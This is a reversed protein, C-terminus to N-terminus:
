WGQNPDSKSADAEDYAMKKSTIKIPYKLKANDKDYCAIDIGIERLFSVDKKADYEKDSSIFENLVAIREKYTAMGREYYERRQKEEAMNIEEESLGEKRLKAKEFEYLGGYDELKPEKLDGYFTQYDKPIYKRNWLAVLAYVDYEGMHGYGDYCEEKIYTGYEDQFEPPVLLYSNKVKNDKMAKGTNSYIWSFQGM